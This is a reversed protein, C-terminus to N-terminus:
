GCTTPRLHALSLVNEDNIIVAVDPIYYGVDKPM